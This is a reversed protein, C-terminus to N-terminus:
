VNICMLIDIYKGLNTTYLVNKYIELQLFGSKQVNPVTHIM